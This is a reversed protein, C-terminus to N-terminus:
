LRQRSVDPRIPIRGPQGAAKRGVPEPPNKALQALKAKEPGDPFGQSANNITSSLKEALEKRAKPSVPTVETKVIEVDRGSTWVLDAGKEDRYVIPPDVIFGDELLVGTDVKRITLVSRKEDRNIGNVKSGKPFIRPLEFIFKEVYERDESYPIAHFGGDDYYGQFPMSQYVFHTKEGAAAAAQIFSLLFIVYLIKRPLQMVKVERGYDTRHHSSSSSAACEREHL